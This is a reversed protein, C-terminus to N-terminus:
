SGRWTGLVSVAEWGDAATHTADCGDGVYADDGEIMEIDQIPLSNMNDDFYDM